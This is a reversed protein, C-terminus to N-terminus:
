ATSFDPPWWRTVAAARVLCTKRRSAQEFAIDIAPLSNPSGDVGVVVPHEGLEPGTDM